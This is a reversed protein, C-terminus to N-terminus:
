TREGARRERERQERTAAARRAAASRRAASQEPNAADNARRTAAARKANDRSRASSKEKQHETAPKQTCSCGKHTWMEKDIPMVQGALNQCAPCAGSNPARTWFKVEHSELGSKYAHQATELTRGRAGTELARKPEDDALADVIIQRLLNPPPKPAPIGVPLVVEATMVTLAAVVGADALAAAKSDGVTLATTALAVFMDETIEGALYRIYLAQVTENTSNALAAVQEAYANM